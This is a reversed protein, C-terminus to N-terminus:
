QQNGQEQLFRRGNVEVAATKAILQASVSAQTGELGFKSPDSIVMRMKVSQYFANAGLMSEWCLKEMISVVEPIPVIICYLDGAGSYGPYGRLCELTYNFRHCLINRFIRNFNLPILFGGPCGADDCDAADVKTYNVFLIDKAYAYIEEWKRQESYGNVPEVMMSHQAQVMYIASKVLNIGSRDNPFHLESEIISYNIRSYAYEGYDEYRRNREDFMRREDLMTRVGTASPTNNPSLYINGGMAPPYIPYIPYIYPNSSLDLTM